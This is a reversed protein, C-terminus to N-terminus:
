TGFYDTGSFGVAIGSFVKVNKIYLTQTNDGRIGAAAGGGSTHGTMQIYITDGSQCDSADFAVYPQASYAHVNGQYAIGGGNAVDNSNNNLGSNNGPLVPLAAGERANYLRWTWYYSGSTIYGTFGVSLIKANSAAFNDPFSFSKLNKFGAGANNLVSSESQISTLYWGGLQAPINDIRTTKIKSDWTITGSGSLSTNAPLTVSKSVLNLSTGLNAVNIQQIAM